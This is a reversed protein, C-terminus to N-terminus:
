APSGEAVLSQSWELVTRAFLEPDHAHMSHAMQPFDRVEFRQAASTVLQGARKVQLDSVAGMLTGTDPDVTRFHHTVLIPAKAASLM